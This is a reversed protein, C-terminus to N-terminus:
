AENSDAPFLLANTVGFRELQRLLDAKREGPIRLTPGGTAISQTFGRAFLFAGNQAALRTNPWRPRYLIPTDDYPTFDGIKPSACISRLDTYVRENRLDIFNQYFTHIFGDEDPHGACAFYLGVLPSFTIDLLRTAVGHHQALSILALDTAGVAPHLRRFLEDAVAGSQYRALFSAYEAFESDSRGARFAKPCMKYEFARSEGRFIAPEPFTWRKEFLAFLHSVSDVTDDPSVM